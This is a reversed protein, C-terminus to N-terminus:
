MVVLELWEDVVSGYSDATVARFRHRGAATVALTHEAGRLLQYGGDPSYHEWVVTHRQRIGTQSDCGADFGLPPSGNSVEARLAVLGGSDRNQLVTAALHPQSLQRPRPPPRPGSRSTRQDAHVISMTGDARAFIVEEYDDGIFGDADVVIDFEIGLRLLREMEVAAGHLVQRYPLGHVNPRELHHTAQNYLLGAPEFTYGDPLVIAVTAKHLLAEMDREARAQAHGQLMRSLNVQEVYPVHHGHDSTWFWFYRAGMDYASTLAHPAVAEETQGYIAMGWDRKFHRAAGRLFAYHYRFVYEPYPPIRCGYHMNLALLQDCMVYRGEHVAGSAGARMEYWVTSVVTEWSPLPHRLNLDGLDIDSRGKLSQQLGEVRASNRTREVVLQAMESPSHRARMDDRALHGPEDYYAHGGRMNSRYLLEPYRDDGQHIYFVPRRHIWERQEADLWFHNVGADILEDIDERSYPTYEYEADNLLRAAQVDRFNRGTGILMDPRLALREGDPISFSEHESIATLSFDFGLYHMGDPFLAKPASMSQPFLIDCGRLEPLLAEGTRADVYELPQEDGEQFLYRAARVPNELTWVWPLRDVLIWCTFIDTNQKTGQLRIWQYRSGRHQVINGVTLHFRVVNHAPLALLHALTYEANQGPQAAASNEGSSSTM